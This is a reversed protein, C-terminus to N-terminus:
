VEDLRSRKWPDPQLLKHTVRQIDLPTQPRHPTSHADRPFYGNAMLFLLIGVSWADALFGNYVGGIMAEPAVYNISGGYAEVLGNNGAVRASGFDILKISGGKGILINEPKLDLHCVKGRHLHVVAEKVQAFVQRLLPMALTKRARLLQFLEIGPFYEMYIMICDGIARSGRMSIVNRHPKLASHIRIESEGAKKAHKSKKLDIIKVAMKEGGEINEALYVQSTGGSGLVRLLKTTYFLRCHKPDPLESRPSLGPPTPPISEATISRVGGENTYINICRYEPSAWSSGKRINELSEATLVTNRRHKLVERYVM